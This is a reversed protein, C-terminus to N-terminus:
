ECYASRKRVVLDFHLHNRHAENAEPGLVTGFLRCAGVHLTRLFAAEHTRPESAAPVDTRTGRESVRRGRAAEKHGAERARGTAAESMKEKAEGEQRGDADAATQKRLDRVTPGWNTLVDITRGDATVVASIDIANAFAHESIRQTASGIRNRCDYSSATVLRTIRSGLEKEAAPQLVEVIWTHLKAVINCNVVAPPSVEISVPLKFGKLRIPAPTGCQANRIPDLVEVSAGTPSLASVCRRLAGIVEDDSWTPPIPPETPQATPAEPNAKAEAPKGPLPPAGPRVPALRSLTNAPPSVGDAPAAGPSREAPRTASHADDRPSTRAPENAQGKAAESRGQSPRETDRETEEERSRHHYRAHRGSHRRARVLQVDTEIGKPAIPPGPAGVAPCTMVVLALGGLVISAKSM